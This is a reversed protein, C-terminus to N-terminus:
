VFEEYSSLNYCFIGVQINHFRSCGMMLTGVFLEVLFNIVFEVLQPSSHVVFPLFNEAIEGGAIGSM